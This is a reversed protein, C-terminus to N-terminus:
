SLLVGIIFSIVIVNVRDRVILIGSWQSVSVMGSNIFFFRQHREDISSSPHQIQSAVILEIVSISFFDHFVFSHAVIM